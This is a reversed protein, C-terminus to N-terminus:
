RLKAVPAGYHSISLLERVAQAWGTKPAHWKLDFGRVETGPSARLQMLVRLAVLRVYFIKTAGRAIQSKSAVHDPIVVNIL